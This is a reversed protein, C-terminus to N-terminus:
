GNKRLLEAPTSKLMRRAVLFSVALTFVVLGALVYAHVASLYFTKFDFVYRNMAYVGAHAIGLSLVGSVAILSVAEMAFLTFLMRPSSGFATFVLMDNSRERAMLVLMSAILLIGLILAPVATGAVAAGLATVVKTVTAIIQATPITSVNPYARALAVQVHPIDAENAYTYGFYNKPIQSFSNTGCTHFYDASSRCTDWGIAKDVDAGTNSPCLSHTEFSPNVVLNVQANIKLAIALSLILLKKLM